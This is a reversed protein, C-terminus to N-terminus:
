NATPDTPSVPSSSDQPKKGVEPNMQKKVKKKTCLTDEVFHGFLGVSCIVIVLFLLAWLFDALIQWESLDPDIQIQVCATRTWDLQHGHQCVCVSDTTCMAFQWM